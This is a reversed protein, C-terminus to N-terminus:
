IFTEEHMVFRVLVNHWWWEDGKKVRGAVNILGLGHNVITGFCCCGLQQAKEM